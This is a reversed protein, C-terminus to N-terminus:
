ETRETKECNIMWQVGYRDTLMGFRHAWSTEAVPMTVTGGHGLAAFFREAEETSEVSLSVASGRIGPYPEGTPACWDSGMLQADGAVLRVHAILGRIEAPMKDSEPMDGMTKKMTITGGLCQQYFDFADAANREFFLYTTLKM